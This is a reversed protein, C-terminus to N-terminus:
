MLLSYKLTYAWKVAGRLRSVWHQNRWALLLERLTIVDAAVFVGGAAKNDPTVATATNVCPPQRPMQCTYAMDREAIKWIAIKLSLVYKKNGKTM